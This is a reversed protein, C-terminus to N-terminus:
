TLTTVYHGGSFIDTYSNGGIDKYACTSVTGRNTYSGGAAKCESKITNESLKEAHALPATTTMLAGVVIAVAATIRTRKM